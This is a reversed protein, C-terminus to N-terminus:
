IMFILILSLNFISLAFIHSDIRDFLGGHEPIIESFNKKNYNRKIKSFTLDGFQSIIPTIIILFVIPLVYKADKINIIGQSLATTQTPFIVAFYWIIGILFGSIFGIVFGEITKNPSINEALKRKGYKKGGVFAFTDTAATILIVLLIFSWNFIALISIISILFLIFLLIVFLLVFVDTIKVDMFSTILILALLCIIMYFFIEFIVKVENTISPFLESNTKYFNPDFYKYFTVGITIFFSGFVIIIFLFLLYFNFDNENKSFIFNTIEYSGYIFLLSLISLFFYNYSNEYFTPNLGAPIIFALVILLVILGIIHKFYSPHEKKHPINNSSEKGIAQKFYSNFYSPHEKKNKKNSSVDIIKNM